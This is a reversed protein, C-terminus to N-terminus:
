PKGDLFSQLFQLLRQCFNPDGLDQRAQQIEMVLQELVRCFQQIDTGRWRINVPQGTQCEQRAAELIILRNIRDLAQEKAQRFCNEMADTRFDRNIQKIEARKQAAEDALMSREYERIGVAFTHNQRETVQAPTLACDGEIMVPIIREIQEDTYTRSGNPQRFSKMWERIKEPYHIRRLCDLYGIWLQDDYYKHGSAPLSADLAARACDDWKRGDKLCKRLAQEFPTWNKEDIIAFELAMFTIVPNVCTSKVNMWPGGRTFIDCWFTQRANAFQVELSLAETLDAIEQALQADRTENSQLCTRVVAVQQSAQEYAARLCPNSYSQGDIWEYSQNEFLMEDHANLADGAAAQMQAEQVLNQLKQQDQPPWNAPPPGAADNEPDDGAREPQRRDRFSWPRFPPDADVGDGGPPPVKTIPPGRPPPPVKRPPPNTIVPPSFPPPNTPDAPRCTAHLRRIYFVENTDALRDVIVAQYKSEIFNGRLCLHWIEGIGPAAPGLGDFIAQLNDVHPDHLNEIGVDALGHAQIERTQKKDLNILLVYHVEPHVMPGHRLLSIFDRAIFLRDGTLLDAEITTRLNAADPDMALIEDLIFTLLAPDEEGIRTLDLLNPWYHFKEGWTSLVAFGEPTGGAIQNTNPLPEPFTNSIAMAAAETVWERVTETTLAQSLDVDYAVDLLVFPRRGTRPHCHRSQELVVARLWLANNNVFFEDGLSAAACYTHNSTLEDGRHVALTNWDNTGLKFEILVAQAAEAGFLRYTLEADVPINNHTWVQADILEVTLNTDVPYPEPTVCEDALALGTWTSCFFFLVLFPKM